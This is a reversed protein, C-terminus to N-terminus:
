SSLWNLSVMPMTLLAPHCATAVFDPALMERLAREDAAEFAEFFQQVTKENNATDATMANGKVPM